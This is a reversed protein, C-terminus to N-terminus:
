FGIVAIEPRAITGTNASVRGELTFTNSGGTLGTRMDFGGFEAIDAAGGSEYKIKHNDNAAVTTAGSVSYSLLTASGATDNALDAKWLVLATTGTTVTVETEGVFDWGTGAGPDDLPLYSTTTGTASATDVDTAIGRWVPASGTSVLHSNAAGIGVRSGMSNAADAYVIDGATTATAASTELLNDRVHANMLAATVTEGTVWTRPATWAM